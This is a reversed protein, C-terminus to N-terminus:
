GAQRAPVFIQITGQAIYGLHEYLPEGDHSALLMTSTYGLMAAEAIAHRMMAAAIGRRRYDALTGVNWIGAIEGKLILTLTAVPVSNYRALYHRVGEVRLANAGLILELDAFPLHFIRSLLLRFTSMDPPTQVRSLALDGPTAASIGWEHPPGDLCMVPMSDYEVYGLHALRNPADSVLRDLVMLCYPRERERFYSDIIELTDLNVMEESFIGAGNFVPAYSASYWCVAGGISGVLGGDASLSLSRFGDASALALAMLRYPSSPSTKSDQQMTTVDKCPQEGILAVSNRGTVFSPAFPEIRHEESGGSSAM